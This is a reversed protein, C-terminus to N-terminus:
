RDPSATSLLLFVELALEDAIKGSAMAPDGEAIKFDSLKVPFNARVAALNGPARVSTKESEPMITIRAPVTMSKTTGKVTMNGVLDVSYTKFGEGEKALAANRANTVVFVVDPYSQANMWRDGALHENRMPIGTDFAKVPLRFVGAKIDFGSGDPKGGFVFYGVVNNNTGKIHELPADSTFTVQADKGPHVYYVTGMAAQADPVVLTRGKSTREPQAFTVAPLLLLVAISLGCVRSVANFCPSM